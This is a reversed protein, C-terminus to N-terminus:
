LMACSRQSPCRCPTSRPIPRKVAGPRGVMNAAHCDQLDGTHAVGDQAAPRLFDFVGALDAHAEKLQPFLPAIDVEIRGFDPLAFLEAGGAARLNTHMAQTRVINEAWLVGVFQCNSRDTGRVDPWSMSRWAGRLASSEGFVAEASDPPAASACGVVLMIDRDLLIALSGHVSAPASAAAAPDAAPKTLNLRPRRTM